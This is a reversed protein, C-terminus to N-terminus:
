EGIPKAGILIGLSDAAVPKGDGGPIREGVPLRAQDSVAAKLKAVERLSTAIASSFSDDAASVHIGDVTAGFPIVLGAAGIATMGAENLCTALQKVLIAAELDMAFSQIFVKRGAFPQWLPKLASCTQATLRRPALQAELALNAAELKAARERTNDATAILAAIRTQQEGDRTKQIGRIATVTQSSRVHLGLEGAVGLIVLGAGVMPISRPVISKLRHSFEPAYELVLGLVVAAIAVSILSDFSDLCVDLSALRRAENSSAASATIALCSFISAM